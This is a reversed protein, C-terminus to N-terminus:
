EDPPLETVETNLVTEVSVNVDVDVTQVAHSLLTAATEVEAVGVEIAIETGAGVGVEDAPAETELEEPSVKEDGAKDDIPRVGVEVSPVVVSTVYSVTVVQGIM